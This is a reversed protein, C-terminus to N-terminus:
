RMNKMYEKAGSYSIHCFVDYSFLLDISNDALFNCKFDSVQHYEIKNKLENPINNYFNNHKASVVDSCIVKAANKMRSTWAGGNSGLDWITANKSYPEICIESIKYMNSYGEKQELCKKATAEWGYKSTEFGGRWLKKFSKIERQLKQNVEKKNKGFIYEKINKFIM